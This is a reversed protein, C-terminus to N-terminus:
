GQAPGAPREDGPVDAGPDAAAADGGTRDTGARDDAEKTDAAPEASSNLYAKLIQDEGAEHHPVEDSALAAVAQETMGLLGDVPTDRYTAATVQVRAGDITGTIAILSIGSSVGDPLPNPYALREVPGTMLKAFAQAADVPAGPQWPQITIEDSTVGISLIEPLDAGSKEVLAAATRLNQVLQNREAAVKDTVM